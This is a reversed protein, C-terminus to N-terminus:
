RSDRSEDDHIAWSTIDVSDDESDDNVSVDSAVIEGEELENEDESESSSSCKKSESEIVNVDDVINNDMKKFLYKSRKDPKSTKAHGGYMYRRHGMLFHPFNGGQTTVLVESHLCVTYDLAALRSSHGM